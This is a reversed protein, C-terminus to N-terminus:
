KKVYRGMFVIGKTQNDIILFLFPHDATFYIIPKPKPHGTSGVYYNMTIRTVAAAETKVEDVDIYAIHSVNSIKLLPQGSIGTFDAKDTFAKELGLRSLSEKLSYSTELRLKPVSM